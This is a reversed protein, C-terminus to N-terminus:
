SEIKGLRNAMLMNRGYLILSEEELTQNKQFLVDLQNQSEQIELQHRSSIQQIRKEFESVIQYRLLSLQEEHRSKLVISEDEVDGLRCSLFRLERNVRLLDIDYRKQYQKKNELRWVKQEMEVIAAIEKLKEKDGDNSM